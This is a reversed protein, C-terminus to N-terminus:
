GGNSSWQIGHENAPKAQALHDALMYLSIDNVQRLSIQRYEMM